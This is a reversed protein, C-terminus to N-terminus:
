NNVAGQKIWHCVQNVQDSTLKVPNVSAVSNHPMRLGSIQSTRNAKVKQCLWSTVYNGAIVQRNGTNLVSTYDVSTGNLSMVYDGAQDTSNHCQICSKANTQTGDSLPTTLIPAIDTSFSVTRYTEAVETDSGASVTSTQSNIWNKVELLEQDTLYSGSKPMRAGYPPNALLKQYLLSGSANGPNIYGNSILANSDLIYYLGASANQSSHCQICKDVLIQSVTPSFGTDVKVERFSCDALSIAILPLLTIFLKFHAAKLNAM